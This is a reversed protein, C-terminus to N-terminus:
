CKSYGCSSCDECGERRVLTPQACRPCFSALAPGAHPNPAALQGPTAAAGLSRAPPQADTDPLADAADEAAIADLHRQVIAGIAAVVSPVYRRDMWAGGRPDFIQQLEHAVFSVDGGRRFVASIMRTLAVSWAYHEMNASSIFIEFPILRRDPARANNITVYLAHESLPWQVKYTRGSLQEPRAMPETDGAGPRPPSDRPPEAPRGPTSGPAADPAAAVSLVSGVSAGARYTTCGKCGSKWALRYIREFDAFPIDSPCNVTKSIAADVYKQAAAQMAIHDEPRLTQASVFCDPLPADGNLERWLRVAYDQVHETRRSGDPELIARDAQFAFVPEIGGSVNHALLSTTGTPAVSTLLGNRVGHKAIGARIDDPLAAVTESALFPEAEFLPFPGKERALDVSAHWAADRIARMWAETLAAAELSGYRVGCMILANALGTVGLGLRRKAKAEAEQHALPYRSVDIVNDLMRVAVPVLDTLADMDLRADPEFPREVLQALNIAGLLCAGYPPLPQEGCPNTAAITECYRLPNLANIRDIFIVGPEASEYNSRLIRNWLDRARLTRYHEGAFALDWDTDNEVAAMFADTVLVSLNFMALRDGARKADIFEEIDPHDCRMTAMMAGRRSGASVITQCMTDWTTMFSVPGSSAAGVGRVPAGKPRLTSFDQGIGGGAKMTQAAQKVGDYIGAITDPLTGMVFCNFQTVTRDTGAGALIRGAPIFKCDRLAALFRPEWAEPDAEAASLARAVRRWTDQISAEDEYAYKERWIRASVPDLLTPPAGLRSAPSTDPM